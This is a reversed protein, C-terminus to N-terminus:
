SILQQICDESFGVLKFIFEILVPLLIFVIGAIIRKIFRTWAEKMDKDEGSFLVKLFDIMGLLIVVAPILFKILSYIMKVYGFTKEGLFGCYLIGVYERNFLDVFYDYDLSSKIKDLSIEFNEKQKKAESETIEGSEKKSDIEAACRNKFDEYGHNYIASTYNEQIKEYAVTAYGKPFTNAINQILINLKSNLVVLADAESQVESCLVDDFNINRADTTLMTLQEDFSVHTLDIYEDGTEGKYKYNQNKHCWGEKPNDSNNDLCVSVRGDPDFYANAPCSANKIAEEAPTSMKIRDSNYWDYSYTYTKGLFPRLWKATITYDDTTADYTIIITVAKKNKGFDRYYKCLEVEEANVEGSFMFLSTFLIGITLLVKKM